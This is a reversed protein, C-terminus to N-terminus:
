MLDRLMQQLNARGRALRSKVTGINVSLTEAIEEYALGEIDRLIVATKQQESLRELAEQLRAQIEAGFVRREPGAANSPLTDALPPGEGSTDDSISVQRHRKRRRLWKIRNLAM